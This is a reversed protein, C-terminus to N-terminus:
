RLELLNKFSSMERLPDFIRGNVSQNWFDMSDTPSLECSLNEEVHDMITCTYKCNGKMNYSDRKLAFERALALKELASDFDHETVSIQAQEIYLQYLNWYFGYYNQDSVILKILKESIDVAAKVYETKKSQFMWLSSLADLLEKTKRFIIKQRFRLQEEGETCIALMMDRSYSQEEPFQEAYKKAENLKGLYKLTQIIGYLAKQRIISDSCNEIVMEFHKKSKELFSMFYDSDGNSGNDDVFAMFYEMSALWELYKYDGPFESVAQKSNIYMEKTDKQWYNEYLEDFYNRRANEGDVEFLVDTSVHFLRTLPVIMSLDPSAVGTEWKSVAQYSVGLLEALQEQTMDNKRRLEKIKKGISM